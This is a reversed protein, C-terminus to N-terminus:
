SSKVSQMAQGGKKMVNNRKRREWDVIAKMKGKREDFQQATYVENTICLARVETLNLCDTPLSAIFASLPEVLNAKIGLAKRECYRKDIQQNTQKHSM